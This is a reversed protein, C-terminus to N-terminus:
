PRSLRGAQAGTDVTGMRGNRGICYRLLAARASMPANTPVAAIASSRLPKPACSCPCEVKAMATSPVRTVIVSLAGPELVEYLGHALKAGGVGGCLAVVTKEARIARPFPTVTATM